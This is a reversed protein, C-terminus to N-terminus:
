VSRGGGPGGAGSTRGKIGSILSFRGGAARARRAALWRSLTPRHGDRSLAAERGGRGLNGQTRSSCPWDSLILDPGLGARLRARTRRCEPPCSPPAPNQLLLSIAHLYQAIQHAVGRSGERYLGTTQLADRRYRRQGM